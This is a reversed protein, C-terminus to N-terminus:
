ESLQDLGWATAGVVVLVSAGGVTRQVWPQDWFKVQQAEELRAAYWDREAEAIRVQGQLYVTDLRYRAELADSWAEHQLGDAVASLPVAVAGCAVKGGSVLVAPVPEGVDLGIAEACEGEVPPIPSPREPLPPLPEAGLAPLLLGLALIV